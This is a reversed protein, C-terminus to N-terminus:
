PTVFSNNIGDSTSFTPSTAASAMSLPMGTNALL